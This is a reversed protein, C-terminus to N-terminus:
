EALKKLVKGYRGHIKDMTRQLAKQKEQGTRIPEIMLRQGDTEISLPTDVEINLLELIAKDIVLSYSNGHRTLTKIM